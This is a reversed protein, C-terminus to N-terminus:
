PLSSAFLISNLSLTFPKYYVISLLMGLWEPKDGFKDYYSTVIYFTSLGLYGGTPNIYSRYFALLSLSALFWRLYSLLSYKFFELIAFWDMNFSSLERSSSLNLLALSKFFPEDLKNYWYCSNWCCLYADFPNCITFFALLLVYSDVFFYIPNFQKLSMLSESLLWWRPWVWKTGPWAFFAWYM